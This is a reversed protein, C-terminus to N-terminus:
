TRTLRYSVIKHGNVEEVPSTTFGLWHLWRVAREHEASGTNELIKYKTLLHEIWRRSAPLFAKKYKTLRTHPILWPRATDSLKSEVTVGMACVILGDVFATYAEDAYSIAKSIIEELTMNPYVTLLEKAVFPSLGEVLMPVHEQTSPVLKIQM